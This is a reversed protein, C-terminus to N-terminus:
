HRPGPFPDWLRPWPVLLDPTAWGPPAETRPADAEDGPLAYAAALDGYTIDERLTLKKMKMKM